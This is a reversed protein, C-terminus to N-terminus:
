LLFEDKRSRSVAGVNDIEEDNDNEYNENEMLLFDREIDALEVDVNSIESAIKLKECNGFNTGKCVEFNIVNCDWNKVLVDKPVFFNVVM